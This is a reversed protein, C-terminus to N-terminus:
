RCSSGEGKAKPVWVVGGGFAFGGAGSRLLTEVFIELHAAGTKEAFRGTGGVVTLDAVGSNAYTVPDLCGFGEDGPELRLYLLDGSNYRLVVTFAYFQVELLLPCRETDFVFDPNPESLSDWTFKGLTGLGAGQGHSAGLLEDGNLDVGALTASGSFTAEITGPLGDDDSDSDSDDDAWIPLPVLLIV